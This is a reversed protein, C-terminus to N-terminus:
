IIREEHSVSPQKEILLISAVLLIISTIIGEAFLLNSTTVFFSDSEVLQSTLFLPTLTIIGIRLSYSIWLSRLKQSIVICFFGLSFFYLLLILVTMINVEEIGVIESISYIAFLGSTIFGSIWISNANRYSNYLVGRFFLEEIFISTVSFVYIAPIDFLTALVLTASNDPRDLSVQRFILGLLIVVIYIVVPFLFALINVLWKWKLFALQEHDFVIKKQKILFLIIGILSLIKLDIFIEWVYFQYQIQFYSIIAFLLSIAIVLIGTFTLSKSEIM